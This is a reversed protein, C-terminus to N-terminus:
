GGPGIVGRWALFWVLVAFFILLGLVLGAIQGLLRDTRAKAPDRGRVHRRLARDANKLRTRDVLHRLKPHGAMTEAMVLYRAESRMRSPLERGARGIVTRLDDGPVDLKVGLYQALAANRETIGRYRM